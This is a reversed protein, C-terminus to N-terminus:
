RGLLVYGALMVFLFAVMAWVEGSSPSKQKKKM